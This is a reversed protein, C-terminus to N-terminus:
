FHFLAMQLLMSPGLSQMSLSNLPLCMMNHQKHPFSFFAILVLSGIQLVYVTVSTSFLSITVLTFPPFSISLSKSQCM